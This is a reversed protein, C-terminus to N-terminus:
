QANSEGSRGFHVLLPVHNSQQYGDLGATASGSGMNSRTDMRAPRSWGRKGAM